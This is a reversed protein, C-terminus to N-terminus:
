RWLGMASSDRRRRRNETSCNVASQYEERNGVLVDMTELEEAHKEFLDLLLGPSECYTVADIHVAEELFDTFSQWSKMTQWQM